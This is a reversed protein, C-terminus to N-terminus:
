YLGAKIHDWAPALQAAFMAWDHTGEELFVVEQHSMGARGMAVGLDRTCSNSGQELLVGLAM